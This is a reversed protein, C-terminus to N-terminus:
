TTRTSDQAPVVTPWLDPERYIEELLRPSLKERQGLGLQGRIRRVYTAITSESMKLDEAITPVSDGRVVREFIRKLYSPLDDGARAAVDLASMNTQTRGRLFFCIMGRSFPVLSCHWDPPRAGYDRLADRLWPPEDRFEQRAYRNLFLIHGNNTVAFAPETWNMATHLNPHAEGFPSIAHCAHFMDRLPDLMEAYLAHEHDGFRRRSPSLVGCWGIWNGNADTTRVSVHDFAHLPELFTDRFLRWRTADRELEGSLVPREVVGFVPNDAIQAFTPASNLGDRIFPTSLVRSAALNDTTAIFAQGGVRPPSYAITPLGGFLSSISRAIRTPGSDSSWTGLPEKARSLEENGNPSTDSSM